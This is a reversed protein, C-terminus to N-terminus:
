LFPLNPRITDWSTTELITRAHSFAIQVASAAVRAADLVGATRLNEYKKTALNFGIEPQGKFNREFEKITERGTYLLSEIPGQLARQVAKIGIREAKTLSKLALDRELATAAQYYTLGGGVVDGQELSLRVSQMATEVNYRNDLLADRTTGGIKIVATSGLLNALRDHLKSQEASPTEKIQTRLQALRIRTREENCHGPLIQTQDKQVVVREATGLDSLLATELKKGYTGGLVSTGTIAAIDKLWNRKEESYGPTKVAVCSLKENHNNIVLLELASGEVGEALVFVPKKAEAVLGIIPVLEQSSQMKGEYVLMFCNELICNGSPDNAFEDALYGGNFRIGEQIEISSAAPAVDDQVWWVGESPAREFAEGVLKAAVIGGATKAINFVDARSAPKRRENIYGVTKEVAREMGDLVEDLPENSEIAEYGGNVLEYCLLLATKAGDGVQRRIEEATKSLLEIGERSHQDRSTLHTSIVLGDRTLVREGDRIGKYATRGGRPGITAAAGDRLSKAGQLILLAAPLQNLDRPPLLLISEIATELAGQLQDRVQRRTRQGEANSELDKVSLTYPITRRGLLDFPLDEIRGFSTNAVLVLREDGLAKLAYGLEVLVNPNPLAKRDRVTKGVTRIITVDAVFISSADIKAFITDSIKPAGAVNRTDSDFVPEVAISEKKKVAEIARKLATQIFNRNAKSPIDSQWSYFITQQPKAM